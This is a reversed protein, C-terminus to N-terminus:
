NFLPLAYCPNTNERSVWRGPNLELRQWNKPEESSLFSLKFALRFWGSLTILLNSHM